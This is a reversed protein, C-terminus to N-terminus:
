FNNINQMVAQQLATRFKDSIPAYGHNNPATPAQAVPAQTVPAQPAPVMSGDPLRMDNVWPTTSGVSPLSALFSQVPNGGAMQQSAWASNAGSGSGQLREPTVYVPADAPRPAFEFPPPPATSFGGGLPATPTVPTATENQPLGQIPSVVSKAAKTKSSIGM